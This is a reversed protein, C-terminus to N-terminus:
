KPFHYTGALRSKWWRGYASCSVMRGWYAHVFENQNILIGCHKAPSSTDMRFLLVAGAEAKSAPLLFRNAADSLLDVAGREAWDPSYIPVKAPEFGHLARWVGRILGLCDCGVQKVSAQHRYPTGIWSNAEEIVALADATELSM